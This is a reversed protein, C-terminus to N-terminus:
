KKYEYFKKSLEEDNLDRGLIKEKKKYMYIDTAFDILNIELTKSTMTNKIEKYYFTLKGFLNILDNQLHDFHEESIKGKIAEEITTQAEAFNKKVKANIVAEVEVTGADDDKEKAVEVATKIAAEVKKEGGLEPETKPTVMEPDEKVDKIIEKTIEKEEEKEKKEEPEEHKPAPKIEEKTNALVLQEMYNIKDKLMSIVNNSKKSAKEIDESSASKMKLEKIEDDRKDKVDKARKELYASVKGLSAKSMEKLKDKMESLPKNVLEEIDVGDIKISDDKQPAEYFKDGYKKTFEDNKEKAMKVANHINDDFISHVTEDESNKKVQEYSDKAIQEDMKAKKMEFYDRLRDSDKVILSVQKLLADNYDKRSVEVQNQLKKVREKQEDYKMKQVPDARHERTLAEVKNLRERADAWNSWYDIENDKYKRMLKDIKDVGGGLLKSFYNKISSWVGENINLSENLSESYEGKEISGITLEEFVKFKNILM